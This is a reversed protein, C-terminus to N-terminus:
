SEESTETSDTETPAETTEAKAQLEQVEELIMDSLEKLAAQKSQYANALEDSEKKLVLLKDFLKQSADSLDCVPVGNITATEKSIEETM